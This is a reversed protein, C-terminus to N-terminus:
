RRKLKREDLAQRIRREIGEEQPPDPHLKEPDVRYRSMTDPDAVRSAEALRQREARVALLNKAMKRVIYLGILAFATVAAVAVWTWFFDCAPASAPAQVCWSAYTWLAKLQRITEM